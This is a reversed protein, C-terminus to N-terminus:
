QVNECIIACKRKTNKYRNKLVIKRTKESHIGVESLQCNTCLVFKFSGIIILHTSFDNTPKSHTLPWEFLIHCKYAVFHLIFLFQRRFGLRARLCSEERGFTNLVSNKLLLFLEHSM